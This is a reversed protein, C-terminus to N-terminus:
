TTTRDQFWNIFEMMTSVPSKCEHVINHVTRIPLEKADSLNQTTV